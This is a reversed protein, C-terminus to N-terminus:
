STYVIIKKGNTSYSVEGPDVFILIPCWFISNIEHTSINSEKAAEIFVPDIKDNIRLTRIYASKQPNNPFWHNKFRRALILKLNKEFKFLKNFSLKCNSSKVILSVIKLVAEIEKKM